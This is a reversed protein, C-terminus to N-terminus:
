LQNYPDLLKRVDQELKQAIQELEKRDMRKKNRGNNSENSSSLALQDIFPNTRCASELIKMCTQTVIDEEDWGHSVDTGGVDGIDIGQEGKKQSSIKRMSRERASREYYKNFIQDYSMGEVQFRGYRRFSRVGDYCNAFVRAPLHCRERAYLKAAKRADYALQALEEPKVELDLVLECVATPLLSKYLRRTTAVDLDGYLKNRNSGFTERLGELTTYRDAWEQKRKQYEADNCATKARRQKRKKRTRQRQRSYWNSDSCPDFIDGGYVGILPPGNAISTAQLSSALSIRHQQRRNNRWDSQQFSDTASCISFLLLCFLFPQQFRRVTPLPTEEMCASGRTRVNSIGYTNSSSCRSRSLADRITNRM